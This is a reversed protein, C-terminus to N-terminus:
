RRVRRRLLAFGAAALAGLPSAALPPLPAPHTPNVVQAAAPHALAVDLVSAIALIRMTTEKLDPRGLNLVPHRRGGPLMRSVDLYARWVPKAYSPPQKFTGDVNFTALMTALPTGSVPDIASTPCFQSFPVGLFQRSIAYGQSIAAQISSSQSVSMMAGSTTWFIINVKRFPQPIIGEDNLLLINEIVCLFVPLVRLVMVAASNMRSMM